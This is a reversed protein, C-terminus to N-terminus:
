EPSWRMVTERAGQSAGRHRDGEGVEVVPGVGLEGGLGPRQDGVQERGPGVVVGAVRPHHQDLQQRPEGLHQEELHVLDRLGAGVPEELQEVAAVPLAGGVHADVLGDLAGHEVQPGPVPGDGGVVVLV